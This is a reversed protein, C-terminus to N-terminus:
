SVCVCLSLSVFLRLSLSVPLPLFLSWTPLGVHSEIWTELIVGQALPLHEVVSGGPSGLYFNKVLINAVENIVHVHHHLRGELATLPILKQLTYPSTPM